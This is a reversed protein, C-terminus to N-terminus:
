NAKGWYDRFVRKYCSQTAHHEDTFDNATCGYQESKGLDLLALHENKAWGHLTLKTQALYDNWNSNREFSAEMGNLLPPMILIVGGGRQETLRALEVIRQLYKLNPLGSTKRLSDTYKSNSAMASMILRESNIVRDTGNYTWSGDDDFGLCHGRHQIDFDMALKGNPCRYEDSRVQLFAQRFASTKNDAHAIDNLIRFLGEIRPYSLADRLMSVLDTTSNNAASSAFIDLSGPTGSEYILGISWDLPIVLWQVQQAHDLVYEAEGIMTGLGIGNKSFNYIHMSAPFMTQDIGFSTSAGFVVTNIEPLKDRMRLQKFYYNDRSSPANVIGHKSQQWLSALQTSQNGALSHQLLIMNLALIPLVSVCFCALLLWLFRQHTSRM